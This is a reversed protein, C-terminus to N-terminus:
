LRGSGLNPPTINVDQASAALPGFACVAILAVPVSRILLKAARLVAHVNVLTRWCHASFENSQEGRIRSFAAGLGGRGLQM